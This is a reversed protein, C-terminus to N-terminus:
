QDTAQKGNREYELKMDYIKSYALINQVYGRTEKYPIIAVWHAWDDTMPYQSLWERVKAPGANYAATALVYNNDYEDLQDKLYRTGLMINYSPDTLKYHRYVMGMKRATKRATVPMLQLVGIAGAPSTVTPSFASEQRALALLWGPDIGLHKANKYFDNEYPIPFREEVATLLNAMGFAQMARSSWGLQYAVLGAQRWEDENFRSTTYAWDNNSKTTEGMYYLEISAGLKKLVEDSIDSPQAEFIANPFPTSNNKQAALMGYFSQERSLRKLLTKPKLAPDNDEFGLKEQAIVYWYLWEEQNKLVAPLSKFTDRYLAWNNDQMSYRLLPDAFSPEHYDTNKLIWKVATEGSQRALYWAVLRQCELLDEKNMNIKHKELIYAGKEPDANIITKVLYKETSSELKLKDHKKSLQKKWYDLHSTTARLSAATDLNAHNLQKGLTFMLTRNGALFALQYRQWIKEQTKYGHKKWQEFAWDCSSHISYPKLWYNGIQEYVYQDNTNVVLDAQLKYCQLVESGLAESYYQVYLPWQNNRALFGLWEIHLLKAVPYGNYKELFKKIQLEPMSSFQRRLSEYDLYPALPYENLQSRIAEYQGFNRNELAHIAQKYLVREKTFLDPKTFDYAAIAPWSYFSCIFICVLSFRKVAVM